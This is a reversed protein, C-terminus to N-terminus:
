FYANIIRNRQITGDQIPGDYPIDDNGEDERLEGEIEPERLEKAINHLVCCAKIIQCARRPAVRLGLSLCPFKRKLQGFVQEITVRTRRHSRNYRREANTTPEAVPTMLWPRLAYGTDGILTGQLRGNEFMEGLLSGHLVASDHTSGPWRAAVNTMKFSANCVAQVNISHYGKRNVYLPEDDGLPAGYLRVHTCDIAGVVGPFGAKDFFGQKTKMVDQIDVPFRIHRDTLRALSNAVRHVIRCVSPVSVDHLDGEVTYFAGTGFFRLTTLLQMLPSIANSRRTDSELEDAVRELVQFVGHRTFRYRTLIEEDNLSDLPNRRDRFLRERRIARRAERDALLMLAM